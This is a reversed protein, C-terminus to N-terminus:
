QRFQYQRLTRTHTHCFHGDSGEQDHELHHNEATFENASNTSWCHQCKQIDLTVMECGEQDHELHHNEANFENDSTTSWSHRCRQVDLNVM